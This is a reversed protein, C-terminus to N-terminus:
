AEEHTTIELVLDGAAIQNGASAAIGAVVGDVEAVIEHQMKMAELVALRDGKSVSQGDSVVIELLLGHMPATITGGGNEDALGISTSAYTTTFSTGDMALNLTGDTEAHFVANVGRGEVDLRASNGNLSKVVIWMSEGEVEVGFSQDDHATVAFLMTEDGQRHSFVSRLRGTSSWNLLQPNIDLAEEMALQKEFVFHLVAAAALKENSPPNAAYGGAGFSEGIFATTAKGSTFEAHGLASILFDRNSKPGFFASRKMADILRLRAQDRTDGHAIIKAVMPDYFPSVEGGTEIGSDVRIGTGRPEQWLAVSGTSPLFDNEPDEAYLRVEIAHGRLAVEGQSISLPEGAAVKLQLAVLDLGTVLETVPHEVQLRTNMELFYFNGSPDLLFEVTGAGRYDVAVTAAIAAKGMQDRLEPTMVPCPSEEIVKQHRRQVSCDREGLHITNGHSDAFVQIEVHRPQQVAKEIILESSGFANEAESRALKIAGPLEDANFVLRMGRGGGGAAAKVMLPFGISRSEEILREDSQDEGQYGPVCPVGAIIMARKSRAKDGMVDIAGVPPGVFILGAEAVAEAFESNESLFGYGPHIAEAGSSKAADIIKDIVLYSEGAPSAGIHVSDDAYKVHPANADADSYVAITRLGMTKATRMIRIAIEGRNAVLISSFHTM